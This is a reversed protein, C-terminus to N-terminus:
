RLSLSIIEDIINESHIQKYYEETVATNYFSQPICDCFNEVFDVAKYDKVSLDIILRLNKTGYFLKASNIYDNYLSKLIRCFGALADFTEFECTVTQSNQNKKKNNIASLFISCNDSFLFVEVYFKTNQMNLNLINYIEDSVSLIFDKIIDPNINYDSFECKKLLIKITNGNLKQIIM